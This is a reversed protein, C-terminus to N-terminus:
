KRKERLFENLDVSDIDFEPLLAKFACDEEARCAKALHEGVITSVQKKTVNCLVAIDEFSMDKRQTYTNIVKQRLPIMYGYTYEGREYSKGNRVIVYNSPLGFKIRWKRVNPQSIKLAKSIETDYAGDAHMKRISNEIDKTLREGHNSTLGHRKLASGISTKHVNLKEAIETNNFGDSYLDLIEQKLDDIRVRIYNSKLRLKM